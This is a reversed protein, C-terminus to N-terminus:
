LAESTKCEKFEIMWEGEPVLIPVQDAQHIPEVMEPMEGHGIRVAVRDAQRPTNEQLLLMRIRQLESDFRLKRM